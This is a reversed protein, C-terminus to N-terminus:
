WSKGVELIGFIHLGKLYYNLFYLGMVTLGTSFICSVWHYMGMLWNSPLLGRGGRMWPIVWLQMLLFPLEVSGFFLFVTKFHVESSIYRM